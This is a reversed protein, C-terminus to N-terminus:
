PWQFHLQTEGSASPATKELEKTPPSLLPSLCRCRQSHQLSDNVPSSSVSRHGAPAGPPIRLGGTFATVNRDEPQQKGECLGASCECRCSKQWWGMVSAEQRKALQTNVHMERTWICITFALVLHLQSKINHDGSIMLSCSNKKKM